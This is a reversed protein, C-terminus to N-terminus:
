TILQGGGSTGEANLAHAPPPTWPAPAKPAYNRSVNIGLASFAGNGPLLALDFLKCACVDRTAVRRPARRRRVGSESDAFRVTCQPRLKLRRPQRYRAAAASWRRLDEQFAVM